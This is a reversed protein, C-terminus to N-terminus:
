KRTILTNGGTHMIELLKSGIPLGRNSGYKNQLIYPFGRHQDLRPNVLISQDDPNVKLITLRNTARYESYRDIDTGWPVEYSAVLLKPKNDLSILIGGVLHPANRHLNDEYQFSVVKIGGVDSGISLEMLGVPQAHNVPPEFLVYAFSEHPKAVELTFSSAMLREGPITGMIREIDFVLESM